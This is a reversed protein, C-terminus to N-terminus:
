VNNTKRADEWKRFNELDTSISAVALGIVVADDLYGVVPIFDPILDFPNVFYIITAIAWVITEWPVDKYEGKVWARVMRIMTNLEDWCKRLLGKHKQSKRIAEDILYATKKKDSAYGEAIKKSKKLEQKAVERSIKKQAVRKTKKKKHEAM